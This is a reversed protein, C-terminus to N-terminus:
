RSRGAEGLKQRANLVANLEKVYLCKEEKRKAGVIILKVKEAQSILDVVEGTIQYYVDEQITAAYVPKKNKVDPGFAITKENVGTGDLQVTKGNVELELRVKPDIFMWEKNKYRLLFTDITKYGMFGITVFKDKEYPKECSATTIPEYLYAPKQTYPNVTLKPTNVCGTFVVLIGALYIIKM